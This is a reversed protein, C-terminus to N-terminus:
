QGGGRCRDTARKPGRSRLRALWQFTSSHAHSEVWMWFRDWGAITKKAADLSASLRLNEARLKTIQDRADCVNRGSDALRSADIRAQSELKKERISAKACYVQLVGRARSRLGSHKAEAAREWDERAKAIAEDILVKVPLKASYKAKKLSQRVRAQNQKRKLLAAQSTAPM